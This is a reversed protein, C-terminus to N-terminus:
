IKIVQFYALWYLVVGLIVVLVHPLAVYPWAMVRALRKSGNARMKKIWSVNIQLPVLTKRESRFYDEIVRMRDYHAYQFTKWYAEILWFLAASLSAILLAPAAHTAFAGVLAVLSFSVSWAKVTIARGDFDVIVSHLHLYESKLLDRTENAKM